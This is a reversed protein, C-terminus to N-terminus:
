PPPQSQPVYLGQYFSLDNDQLFQDIVGQQQLENMAQIFQDSYAQARQQGFVTDSFCLYSELVGLQMIPKIDLELLRSWSTAIAVDAFVTDIRQSKLMKFLTHMNSAPIFNPQGIFPDSDEGVSRLYGVGYLKVSDLDLQDPITNNDTRKYISLPLRVYPTQHCSFNANDPAMWKGSYRLISGADISGQMLAGVIRPYSLYQERANFGLHKLGMLPVQSEISVGPNEEDNHLSILTRQTLGIRLSNVRSEAESKSEGESARLPSSLLASILLPILVNKLKMTTAHGTRTSLRDHENM